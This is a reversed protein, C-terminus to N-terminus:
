KIIYELPVVKFGFADVGVDIRNKIKNLTNHSHGHLHISNYSSGNWDQMAYHCLVIFRDGLQIEYIDKFTYCFDKILNKYKKDHNGLIFHLKVQSSQIINLAKIINDRGFGLDGLFYLEDGEKVQNKFNTFITNNMENVDSFPRSCYKIINTHGIHWDSSFYIV